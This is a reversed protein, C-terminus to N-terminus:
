IVKTGKYFYTTYLINYMLNHLKDIISQKSVNVFILFANIINIPM